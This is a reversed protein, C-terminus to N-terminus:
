SNPFIAPQVTGSWWSNLTTMIGTAFTRLGPILIFAAIILAAAVGIVSSVAFEGKEEAFKEAARKINLAALNMKISLNRM